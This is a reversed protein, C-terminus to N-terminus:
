GVRGGNSERVGTLMEAVIAACAAARPQCFRSPTGISRTKSIAKAPMIVNPMAQAIRLSVPLRALHHELWSICVRGWGVTDIVDGHAGEDCMDDVHQDCLFRRQGDCEVRHPEAGGDEQAFQKLGADVGLLDEQAAELAGSGNGACL